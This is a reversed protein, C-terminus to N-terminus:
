CVALIWTTSPTTWASPDHILHMCSCSTHAAVSVQSLKGRTVRPASCFQKEHMQPHLTEIVTSLKANHYPSLAVTDQNLTAIRLKLIGSDGGIVPYMGRPHRSTEKTMWCCFNRASALQIGQVVCPESFDLIPQLALHPTQAGTIHLPYM